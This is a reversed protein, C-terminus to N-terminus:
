NEEEYLAALEVTDGDFLWGELDYVMDDLDKMIQLSKNSWDELDEIATDTFDFEEQFNDVQSIADRLEIAAKDLRDFIKVKRREM